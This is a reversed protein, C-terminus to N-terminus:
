IEYNKMVDVVKKFMFKDIHSKWLSKFNLLIEWLRWERDIFYNIIRMFTLNNSSMWNNLAINIKTRSEKNQLIKQQIVFLKKWMVDEILIRKSIKTNSRLMNILHIFEFHKMSRFFMNITLMVNMLQNQFDIENFDSQLSRSM